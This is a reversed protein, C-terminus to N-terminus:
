TQISLQNLSDSTEVRAAHRDIGRFACWLTSPVGRSGAQRNGPASLWCKKARRRSDPASFDRDRHALERVPRGDNFCQGVPTGPVPTISEGRDNISPASSPGSIVDTVPQSRKSPELRSRKEKAIRILCGVRALFVHPQFFLLRRAAISKPRACIRRCLPNLNLRGYKPSVSCIHPQAM